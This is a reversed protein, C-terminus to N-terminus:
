QLPSITSEARGHYYLVNSLSGDERYIRALSQFSGTAECLAGMHFVRGRDVQELGGAGLSSPALHAWELFTSAPQDCIWCLLQSPAVANENCTGSQSWKARKLNWPQGPAPMSCQIISSFAVPLSDDSPSTAMWEITPVSLDSGGFTKRLYQHEMNNVDMFVDAGPLSCTLLLRSTKGFMFNGVLLDDSTASVSTPGLSYSGSDFFVFGDNARNLYLGNKEDEWAVAQERIGQVAGGCSRMVEEVAVKNDESSGANWSCVLQESFIDFRPAAFPIFTASFSKQRAASTMGRAQRTHLLCAMTMSSFTRRFQRM